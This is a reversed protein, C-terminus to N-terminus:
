LSLLIDMLNPQPLLDHKDSYAHWQNYGRFSEAMVVKRFVNCWNLQLKVVTIKRGVM